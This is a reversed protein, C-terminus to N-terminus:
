FGSSFGHSTDDEKEPKNTREYILSREQKPFLEMSPTPGPIDQSSPGLEKLNRGTKPSPATHQRRGITETLDRQNNKGTLTVELPKIKKHNM